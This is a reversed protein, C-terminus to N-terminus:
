NGEVLNEEENEDDFYVEVQTGCSRCYYEGLSDELADGSNLDVWDLAEVDPSNCNVCKWM